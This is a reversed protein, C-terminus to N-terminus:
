MRAEFESKLWVTKHIFPKYNQSRRNQKNLGIYKYNYSSYKTEKKM